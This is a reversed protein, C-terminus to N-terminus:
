GHQMRGVHEGYGHHWVLVARQEANAPYTVTFLKQGRANTREGQTPAMPAAAMVVERPRSVPATYARRLPRARNHPKLHVASIRHVVPHLRAPAPTASAPVPLPSRAALTAPASTYASVLPCLHWCFTLHDPRWTGTPASHSSRWGGGGAGPNLGSHSFGVARVHHLGTSKSIQKYLKCLQM